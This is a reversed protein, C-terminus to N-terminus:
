RRRAPRPRGRHLGQSAALESVDPRGVPGRVRAHVGANDHCVKKEKAPRPRTSRLRPEPHHKRQLDFRRPPRWAPRRVPRPGQVRGSTVGVVMPRRLGELDVAIVHESVLRFELPTGNMDYYRACIDGCPVDVRRRGERQALAGDRSGRHGGPATGTPVLGSSHSPKPSVERRGTRQIGVSVSSRRSRVQTPRSALAPAHLYRYRAGLRTALERVLEQGRPGAHFRRPRWAEVVEVDSAPEAASGSWPRVQAAGGSRPQRGEEGDDLVVLDCVPWRSLRPPGPRMRPCRATTCATASGSTRTRGRPRGADRATTSASRSSARSGARRHADAVRELPQNGASQRRRAAVRRRRLVDTRGQGAARSRARGDSEGGDCACINTVSRRLM